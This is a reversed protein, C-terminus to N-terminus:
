NSSPAVTAVPAIQKVAAAITAKAAIEKRRRENYEVNRKVMTNLARAIEDDPRGLVCGAAALETYATVGHHEEDIAEVFFQRAQHGAKQVKEVFGTQQAPPVRKDQKDTIVLPRLLPDKAVLPVSQSADFISRGPDPNKSAPTVLPGSGMVACAVDRRLGILGGVLKSGGSQGALHFGEFGYQQKLADLAANVLQLELVTHRSTHNGSTGDLGIRGVYIATTKAMKSFSGALQMLDASDIDKAESTDLWSWSKMDLKLKQDGQLFVVPRRGEGGATSLYYRVCYDRGHVSLWLAQATADCQAHTITVGRLMDEKKFVEARAGLPGLLAGALTLICLGRGATAAGRLESLITM